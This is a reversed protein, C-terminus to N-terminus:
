AAAPPAAACWRTRRPRGCRRVPLAAPTRTRRRPRRLPPSGAGADLAQAASSGAAPRRAAALGLLGERPQGRQAVQHGRESVGRRGRHSAVGLEDGLDQRQVVGQQAPHVAGLDVAQGVRRAPSPRARLSTVRCCALEGRGSHGALRGAASRTAPQLGAVGPQRVLRFLKRVASSVPWRTRNRPSIAPGAFVSRLRGPAPASCRRGPSGSGPACRRGAGLDVVVEQRARRRRSRSGRDLQGRVLSAARVM